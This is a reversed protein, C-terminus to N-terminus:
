QTQKALCATYGEESIIRCQAEEQGSGVCANFTSIMEDKCNVSVNKSALTKRCDDYCKRSAEFCTSGCESPRQNCCEVNRNYCEARCQASDLRRVEGESNLDLNEVVKSEITAKACLITSTLLTLLLIFKFEM